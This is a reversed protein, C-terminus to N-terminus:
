ESKRVAIKRITHSPTDAVYVNGAADTAVGTPLNFRAASGAGDAAGQKGAKEVLTTVVGAPTIKRITYDGADTVYVNGAADTAAGELGSFRATSGIGDASGEKGAQGALTTVLGTPAIKRITRNAFDAVYVNGAADTAVGTPVDFRAASGIGDASGTEEAKGM